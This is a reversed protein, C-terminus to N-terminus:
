VDSNSQNQKHFSKLIPHHILVAVLSSVVIILSLLLWHGNVVDEPLLLLLLCSLSSLVFAAKLLRVSLDDEENNHLFVLWLCFIAPISFLMSFIIALAFSEAFDSHVLKGLCFVIAYLAGNIFATLVWITFSFFTTKIFLKM